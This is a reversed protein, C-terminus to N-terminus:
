SGLLLLPPLEASRGPLTGRPPKGSTGWGHGSARCAPQKARRITLLSRTRHLFPLIPTSPTAGHHDRSSPFQLSVNFHAHPTLWTRVPHRYVAAHEHAESDVRTRQKQRHTHKQRRQGAVGTMMRYCGSENDSRWVPGSTNTFCFGDQTGQASCPM